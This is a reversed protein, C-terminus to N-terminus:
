PRTPFDYRLLPTERNHGAVTSKLVGIRRAGLRLYFGEANPDSEIDFGREGLSQGIKVSYDFLRRGIGRGIWPPTVWLHELRLPPAARILMFFGIAEDERSALFTPNAEIMLPTIRLSASWECLWEEPYGWHKKASCAIGSLVEADSREAKRLIVSSISREM